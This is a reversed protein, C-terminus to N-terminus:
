NHCTHITLFTQKSLKGSEISGLLCKQEYPMFSLLEKALNLHGEILVDHKDRANRLWTVENILLNEVDLLPCNTLYAFNVLRCLLQFFEHSTNAYEIVLTNILSFLLPTILQLALRSAAGCTCIIILQEAAAVRIACNPNILVLDTIFYPWWNDQYMHQLSSHNLVVAMSLLEFAEKTLIVDDNSLECNKRNNPDALSHLIEPSSNLHDLNNSSAAWVLRILALTTALDPLEWNLAQSFLAQAQGTNCTEVVMLQALSQSLKM